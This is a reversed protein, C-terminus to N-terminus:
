QLNVLNTIPNAHMLHDADNLKPPSSFFVWWIFGLAIIKIIFISLIEQRLSKM